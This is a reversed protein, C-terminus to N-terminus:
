CCVVLELSLGSGGLQRSGCFPHLSVAARRWQDISPFYGSFAFLHRGPSAKVIWSLHSLVVLFSLCFLDEWNGLVSEVGSLM